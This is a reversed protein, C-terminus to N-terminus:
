NRVTGPNPARWSYRFNRNLDVGLCTSNIMNRNQRWMRNQNYSWTYGDPNLNPIIIWDVNELLESRVEPDEILRHLFYTVTAQSVWERAHMGGDMFVIPKRGFGGSSIKLAFVDRGEFTRAIVERTVYQPYNSALQISFQNIQDSTWYVSFDPTASPNIPSKRKNRRLRSIREAEFEKEIEGVNDVAIEYNLEIEMLFEEFSAQLRPPMAIRSLLGAAGARWFDVNPQTRWELLAELQTENPIV